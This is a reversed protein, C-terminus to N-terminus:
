PEIPSAARSSNASNISVVRLAMSMHDDRSQERELAITELLHLLRAPQGVQNRLTLSGGHDRLQLGAAVLSGYGGCDMFTMQAMEVMVAKDRRALCADLVMGRSARDLEGSITVVDCDDTFSVKIVCDGVNM